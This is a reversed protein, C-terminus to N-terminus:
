SEPTRTRLRQAPRVRVRNATITRVCFLDYCIHLGTAPVQANLVENLACMSEACQRQADAVNICLAMEEGRGDGSMHALQEGVAACLCTMGQCARECACMCGGVSVSVSFCLCVGQWSEWAKATRDAAVALLKTLLQWHPSPFSPTLARARM